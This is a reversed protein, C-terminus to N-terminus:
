TSTGNTNREGYPKRILGYFTLFWAHRKGPCVRVLKGNIKPGYVRITKARPVRNPIKQTNHFTHTNMSGDRADLRHTEGM